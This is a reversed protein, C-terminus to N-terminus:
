DRNGKKFNCIKLYLRTKSTKKLIHSVTTCVYSPVMISIHYIFATKKPGTVYCIYVIIFGYMLSVEPASKHM